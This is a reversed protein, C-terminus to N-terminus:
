VEAAKAAEAVERASTVQRAAEAAAAAAEVADKEKQAALQANRVVQEQPTFYQRGALYAEYRAHAEQEAISEAWAPTSLSTLFALPLLIKRTITMPTPFGKKPSTRIAQGYLVFNLKWLLSNVLANFLNVGVQAYPTSRLAQCPAVSRNYKGRDDLPEFPFLRFMRANGPLTKKRM